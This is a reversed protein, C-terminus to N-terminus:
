SKFYTRQEGVGEIKVRVVRKRQKRKGDFWHAFASPFLSPWEVCALAGPEEIQAEIGSHHLEDETKLRYLDIHYVLFGARAHYETVLPFTPSGQSLENPCLVSLLARVFTSKGAGMEGELFLVTNKFYDEGSDKVWQRVRM